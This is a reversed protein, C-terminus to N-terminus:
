RKNSHIYEILEKFRPLSGTIKEHSVCYALRAYGPCGFASGPVILLNFKKALECFEKDDAVLSKIFLYFAGEPKVCQYGLETLGGYIADRNKKYFSVDIPVDLCKAIARQLLSPANIYGITRNAVNAAFVITEFDDMERPMVIYGIREGPLSLSKSYSYCVFTNKYYKPIYPVELDDYVLERYPEDAIIYISTGLEKQKRNLIEAIGKISEESYVAGSPNNPTNVILAKTRSNIKNELEQLNPQFNETNAPIVVLKGDFNGVYSRYEGFFPALTIVEDEPDLLTKFIVSLGGAAGVTMLINEANFNKDFRRNISEAVKQRVDEYGSNNMYGHVLTPSENELVDIIAQKVELPPPLNPNGLSFDFVNEEGHIKAMNKGEEFLARIVSSNEVLSVMKKSIMITGEKGVEREPAFERKIAVSLKRGFVLVPSNQM